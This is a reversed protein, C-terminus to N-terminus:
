KMINILSMLNESLYTRFKSRSFSMAFMNPGLSRQKIVIEQLFQQIPSRNM